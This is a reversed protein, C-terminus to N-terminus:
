LGNSAAWENLPLIIKSLTLNPHARMNRTFPGDAVIVHDAGVAVAFAVYLTDYTSHNVTIGVDLAMEHLGLDGTPELFSLARFFGLRKGAQQPTLVKRRVQLWIVNTAEAMCFDPLVLDEQSELLAYAWATDPETLVWKLAVSADVVLRM